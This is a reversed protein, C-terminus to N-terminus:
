DGTKKRLLTVAISLIMKFVYYLTKHGRHMSKNQANPHMTVPIERIKFGHRHLMIIFDADPYDPPYFDGAAFAITKGKIVQFGSTPDTVRQGTILSAIGGFFLMGLRRPLSVEYKCAGLFRSGIVVDVDDKEIERLLPKIFRADHQGDADMHLVVSYKKQLAYIFGTQLAVGYGSNFPMNIVKAGREGAIRETEDSSGDNVLLVPIDPVERKVEELVKGINAAENFAPIVILIKKSETM